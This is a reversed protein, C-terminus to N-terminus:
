CVVAAGSVCFGVVIGVLDAITLLIGMLGLVPRM